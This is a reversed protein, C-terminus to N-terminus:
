RAFTGSIADSFSQPMPAHAKVAQGRPKAAADRIPKKSTRPIVSAPTADGPQAKVTASLEANAVPAGGGALTSAGATKMDSATKTDSAGLAPGKVTKATVAPILREAVAIAAGNQGLELDGSGLMLYYGGDADTIEYRRGRQSRGERLEDVTKQGNRLHWEAILRGSKERLITLKGPLAPPSTLWHGIVARHDSAVDASFSQVEDFRLGNISVKTEADFRIEAWPAQALKMSPLYFAIKAPAKGDARSARLTKAWQRLDSEAVRNEIRVALSRVGASDDESVIQFAPGALAGTACVAMAAAVRLADRLWGLRFRVCRSITM